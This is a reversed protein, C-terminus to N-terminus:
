TWCSHLHTQRQNQCYEFSHGGAKSVISVRRLRSIIGFLNQEVFCAELLDCMAPSWITKQPAPSAVREWWGLYIFCTPAIPIVFDIHSHRGSGQCIKWSGNQLTELPNNGREKCVHWSAPVCPQLLFFPTELCSHFLEIFREMRNWIRWVKSCITLGTLGHGRRQSSWVSCNRGPLRCFCILLKFAASLCHWMLNPKSSINKPIKRPNGTRDLKKAIQLMKFRSVAMKRLMKMSNAHIQLMKDSSATM